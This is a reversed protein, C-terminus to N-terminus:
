MSLHEKKVFSRWANWASLHALLSDRFHPDFSEFYGHEKQIKFHPKGNKIKEPLLIEKGREVDTICYGRRYCLGADLTADQRIWTNDMYILSLGHYSLVGDPIREKYRTELLPYDIADHYTLASPIGVARYLATQLISKQHCFGRGEKLIVSAKWNDSDRILPAFDYVIEDRVFYYIAKAKDWLDEIGNSIEQVKFQIDSHDFDMFEDAKLCSEVDLRGADPLGSINLESFDTM